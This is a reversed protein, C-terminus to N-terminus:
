ILERYVAMTKKQMEELSFNKSASKRANKRIKDIEKSGLNDLVFGIKEALEVPENPTVHFGSEGDKVTEAAGGINSAIVVKEMAQGEIVVRGFAEPEISTSLVIDALAYLVPMCPEAGFTQVRSQLKMDQILEKIEQTFTPHKGLDGAIICFFEKDRIVNLAKILCEHGKWRTMRAPLLVVPVDKPVHYKARMAELADKKVNKPNFYETDVGRHIVRVKDEDIEYNDLMHDRVFNSVAIVRDGKTMISNYQRKCSESFNYIGHFTTLFPRDTKRSAFYSSWAPARSRAHILDVDHERILSALKFVNFFMWLPNKTDVNMNIHHANADLVKSVLPGGCSTIVAECDEAVIAKAIEIAGREVGGAVLAPVVQLITPKHYDKSKTKM